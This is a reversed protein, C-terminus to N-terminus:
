CCHMYAFIEHRCIPSKRAVQPGAPEPVLRNYTDIAFTANTKGELNIMVNKWCELDVQGMPLALSQPFAPYTFVLTFFLQAPM